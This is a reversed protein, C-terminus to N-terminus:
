VLRSVSGCAAAYPPHAACHATLWAPSHTPHVAKLSQCLCLPPLQLCSTYLYQHTGTTFQYRSSPGAVRSLQLSRERQLRSRGRARNGPGRRRAGGNAGGASSSGCATAVHGLLGGARRCGRCCGADLSGAGRHVARRRRRQRACRCLGWATCHPLSRSTCRRLVTLSAICHRLAADRDRLSPCADGLGVASAELDGNHSRVKMNIAPHTTV